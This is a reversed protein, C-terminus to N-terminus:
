FRAVVDLYFTQRNDAGNTTDWFPFRFNQNDATKPTQEVLTGLSLSLYDTVSYGVEIVGVMLDSYGRGGVANVSSLEDLEFSQYTFNQYYYWVVDVSFDELFSFGLGVQHMLSWETIQKGTAVLGESVGESGGARSPLPFDFEDVDGVSNTYENFNKTASFGYTLSMWDLPAFKM